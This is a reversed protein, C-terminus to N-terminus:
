GGRVNWCPMGLRVLATRRTRFTREVVMDDMSPAQPKNLTGAALLSENKAVWGALAACHIWLARTVSAFQSRLRAIASTRHGMQLLARISYGHELTIAGLASALMSCPTGDHSTSSLIAAVRQYLRDTQCCTRMSLQM